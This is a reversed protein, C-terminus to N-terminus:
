KTFGPNSTEWISLESAARPSEKEPATQGSLHLSPILHPCVQKWAQNYWRGVSLSSSNSGIEEPIRDTLSRASFLHCVRNPLKLLTYHTIFTSNVFTFPLHLTVVLSFVPSHSESSLVFPSEQAWPRWFSSHSESGPSLSATHPLVWWTSVSCVSPAWLLQTLSIQLFLEPARDTKWRDGWESAGENAFSWPLDCLSCESATEIAWGRPPCPLFALGDLLLSSVRLLNYVVCVWLHVCRTLNLFVAQGLSLVWYVKTRVGQEFIKKSVTICLSAPPFAELVSCKVFM